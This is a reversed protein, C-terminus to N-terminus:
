EVLNIFSELSQGELMRVRPLLLPDDGPNTRGYETTVACLFGAEEVALVCSDTYDGYPYAFADGNKCIEISKQLDAVAESHEMVPFIGGHGINGGARHMNHSHSQFTVYDSAYQSVKEEGEKNTILFSTVPIKYKDFLPAGLELFSKAGDDFTLVVSKEPLLLEGDVFQCVEEWTPFYYENDVLYKLEEELAHVEIFNNNIEDPPNDKDYVYHYMCIALGNTKHHEETATNKVTRVDTSTEEADVEKADSDATNMSIDQTNATSTQEPTDDPRSIKWIFIAIAVIILFFLCLIMRRLLIKRRRRARLRQRRRRNM